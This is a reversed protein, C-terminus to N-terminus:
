RPAVAIESFVLLTQTKEAIETAGFHNHKM